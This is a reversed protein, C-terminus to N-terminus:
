KTDLIRSGHEQWDRKTIWFAENDKMLDALVAGGMFVMHKRQPPAEVRIKIKGLRSADGGLVRDVYMRKLDNECRTPFGPFMTTGGSLVVHKYLDPRVDVDAGQIAGFVQESLGPCEKDLLHPQFLVEAAEFREAGLKISRGDNM